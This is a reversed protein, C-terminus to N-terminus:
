PKKLEGRHHSVDSSPIRPTLDINRKVEADSVRMYEPILTFPHVESLGAAGRGIALALAKATAPHASSWPRLSPQGLGLIEPRLSEGSGLLIPTGDGGYAPSDPVPVEATIVQWWEDAPRSAESVVPHVWGNKREYIGSFLEGRRADLVPIALEAEPHDDLLAAAMAALSTVGVLSAGLAWALGKATAVGIRLGTFSGPGITVGVMKIESKKHGTEALMEEVVPLLADAYSGMVNLPKYLLLNDGDALAFRGWPTATDLALTLL